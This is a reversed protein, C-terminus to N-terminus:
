LLSVSFLGQAHCNCCGSSLMRTLVTEPYAEKTLTNYWQGTHQQACFMCVQEGPKAPLEFGMPPTM